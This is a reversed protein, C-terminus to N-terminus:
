WCRILYLISKSLIFCDFKNSNNKERSSRNIGAMPILADLGRGLGGHRKKAM